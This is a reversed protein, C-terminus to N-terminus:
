LPTSARFRRTTGHSTLRDTLMKRADCGTDFIHIRWKLGLRGGAENKPPERLLLGDSLIILNKSGSIGGVLFLFLIIIPVIGDKM